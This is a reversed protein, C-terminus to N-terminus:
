INEFLSFSMSYVSENILLNFKLNDNVIDNVRLECNSLNYEEGQVKFTVGENVGGVL